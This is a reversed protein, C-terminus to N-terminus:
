LHSDSTPTLLLQVPGGSTKKMAMSDNWDHWTMLSYIRMVSHVLPATESFDTGSSSSNAGIPSYPAIGIYCPWHEGFDDCFFGWLEGTLALYPTDKTLGLQQWQEVNFWNPTIIYWQM